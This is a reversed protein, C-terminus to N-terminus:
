PTVVPPLSAVFCDRNHFDPPGPAHALAWYSKHGGQEEIIATLNGILPGRPTDALDLDVSLELPRDPDFEVHPEVTMHQDRMGKRYADFKYAAWRSSPSFNFELYSESDLTGLFLEFCTSNWLGNERRSSQWDPVVVNDGDIRFDIMMECQDNATIDVEVTRVSKPMAAPHPTLQYKM